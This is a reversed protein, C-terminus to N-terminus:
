QNVFILSTGKEGKTEARMQRYRSKEHLIVAEGSLTRFLDEPLHLHTKEFLIDDVYKALGWSYFTNQLNAERGELAFGALSIGVLLKDTTTRVHVEGVCFASGPGGYVDDQVAHRMPWCLFREMARMVTADTTTYVVRKDGAIGSGFPTKEKEPLVIRLSTIRRSGPDTFDLLRWPTPKPLEIDAAADAKQRQQTPPPACFVDKQLFLLFLLSIAPLFGIAQVKGAPLGKVTAGDFCM